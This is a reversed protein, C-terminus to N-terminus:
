WVNTDCSALHCSHQPGARQDPRRQRDGPPASIRERKGTTRCLAVRIRKRDRCTATQRPNDSIMKRLNKPEKETAVPRTLDRGTAVPRVEEIYAIHKRVSEPSIFFKEGTPTEVRRYDLHGNACYRQLGAVEGKRSGLCILLRVIRGLTGNTQAARWVPVLELDTLVSSRPPTNTPKSVGAIPSREIIRRTEAWTFFVSAVTHLHYGSSPNTKSLKDIIQTLDATTIRELPELRFRPLLYRKIFGRYWTRTRDCVDRGDLFMEVAAGFAVHSPARAKGM